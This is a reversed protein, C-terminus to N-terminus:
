CWKNFLRDKRWQTTADKDFILQGCIHPNIEPSPEAGNTYIDTKKHWYWVTKITPHHRWSQEDRKINSQSFFFASLSLNSQSNKITKQPETHIIPNNKRNRHSVGNSNQYLNWHIQLNSQYYPFKLM